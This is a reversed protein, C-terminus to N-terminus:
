WRDSTRLREPRGHFVSCIGYIEAHALEIRSSTGLIEIEFFEPIGNFVSVIITYLYVNRKVGKYLVVFESLEEIVDWIGIGSTYIAYYYLVDRKRAKKLIRERVQSYM